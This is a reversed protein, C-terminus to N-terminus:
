NVFFNHIQTLSVQQIHDDGMEIEMDGGGIGDKPMMANLWPFFVVDVIFSPTNVRFDKKQIDPGILCL